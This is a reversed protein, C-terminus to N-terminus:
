VAKGTQAQRHINCQSASCFPRAGFSIEGEQETQVIGWHLIFCIDASGAALNASCALAFLCDLNLGSKQNSGALRKQVSASCFGQPPIGIALPRFRLNRFPPSLWYDSSPPPASVHRLNGTAQFMRVDDASSFTPNLKARIPKLSSPGCSDTVSVM